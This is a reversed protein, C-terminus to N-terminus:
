GEAKNLIGGSLSHGHCYRAKRESAQPALEMEPQADAEGDEGDRNGQGTAHDDPM